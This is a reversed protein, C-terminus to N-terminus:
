FKSSNEYCMCCFGSYDMRDFLVSYSSDRYDMINCWLYWLDDSYKLCFDDCSLCKKKKKRDNIGDLIELHDYDESYDSEDNPNAPHLPCYENFIDM